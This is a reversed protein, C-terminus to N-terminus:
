RRAIHDADVSVHVDASGSGAIGSDVKSSAEQSATLAAQMVGTAEEKNLTTEGGSCAGMLLGFAGLLCVSVTKYTKM